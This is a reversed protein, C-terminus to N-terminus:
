DGIDLSLGTRALGALMVPGPVPMGLLYGQAQDFGLDRVMRYQEMTEIGEAISVAGLAALLEVLHKLVVVRREDDGLMLERDLKVVQWARSSLFGLRSSGSGCDDIALSVGGATLVTAGDEYKLLWQDTGRETIEAVVHVDHPWELDALWELLPGDTALQSLELNLHITLPGSVLARVSTMTAWADEVIRRTLLGLLGHEQASEVLAVPSIAGIEPHHARVLAEWGVIWGSRIDIIPQYATAIGDHELLWTVTKWSIREPATASQDMAAPKAEGRPAPVAFTRSPVTVEPNM